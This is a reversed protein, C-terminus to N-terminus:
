FNLFHLVSCESLVKKLFSIINYQSFLDIPADIIVELSSTRLIYMLIYIIYKFSLFSVVM